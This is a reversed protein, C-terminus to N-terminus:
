RADTIPTCHRPLEHLGPAALAAITLFALIIAAIWGHHDTTRRGPWRRTTRKDTASAVNRIAPPLPVREGLEYRTNM